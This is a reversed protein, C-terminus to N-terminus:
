EVVESCKSLCKFELMYKIVPTGGTVTSHCCKPIEQYGTTESFVGKGIDDAVWLELLAVGSIKTCQITIDLYDNAELDQKEYCDTKFYDESYQYYIHDITSGSESTYLQDIKVRVSEPSQSVIQVAGDPLPTDGTQQVLAIDGPCQEPVLIPARTPGDSPALSPTASPINTPSLTPGDSPALSPTASPVNTPSLTPGDSPALSPTASPVNTPSLTPAVTPTCFFAIAGAGFVGHESVVNVGDVDVTYIIDDVDQQGDTDDIGDNGNDVVNLTFCSASEVCLYTYALNESILHGGREEVLTNDSDWLKWFTESPKLDPKIGIVVETETYACEGDYPANGCSPDTSGLVDCMTDKIWQTRRSIRGFVTPTGPQACIKTGFSVIGVLVDLFTGDLQEQRSILPGGSDGYCANGGTEGYDWGACLMEQNFNPKNANWAADCELLDWNPVVVEKLYEPNTWDNDYGMGMVTLFQGASPFADDTNLVLTVQSKDIQVPRDLKCLAFDFEFRPRVATNYNEHRIWQVCYRSKAGDDIYGKRYASVSVQSGTKDGCHAALLITDESILTGGCREIQVFYPFQGPLADSGAVDNPDGVIYPVPVEGYPIYDQEEEAKSTLASGKLVFLAVFAVFVKIM